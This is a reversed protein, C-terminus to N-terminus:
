ESYKLDAMVPFHDSMRKKPSAYQSVNFRKDCFIYDIRLTPSIGSYTRGMGSGKERFVDRMDKGIRFYAYSNPVDNLDGCVIVPYPSKEMEKRIRDSQRHHLNISYRLKTLVTRSKRLDARDDFSPNELYEKYPKTFRLTQLHCNYIRFTDPGKVLDAYQFISNYNLPPENITKKKILPYRSMLIIGFHHRKDYDFKFHYSFHYYPMRFSRVFEQMYTLAGNASDGAVMEQFCAVDPRYQRILEMMRRKMEPDKKYNGINFQEVNWTMVRLTNEEKVTDFSHQRRLQIINGLPQWCILLTVLSILSLSPRVFLWFFFFALLSLLFYFNMLALVGMMWSGSEGMRNGFCGVLLSIAAAINLLAISRKIFKRLFKGAM